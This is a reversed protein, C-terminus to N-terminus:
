RLSRGTAHLPGAPAFSRRTERVWELVRMTQEACRRWQFARARERGAEVLRARLAPDETVRIMGSAISEVSEPDVLVAAGSAVEKTGYRDSTVVPCGAAMAELVPLGCSEFLSPLLLADALGYVAALDEEEAVWGPWHVWSAIGLTEPERLASEALFRNEGGAVVLHVGRPPGVKAYAQVLRAFNKPPYIAGAYLFYRDPLGYWERVAQLRDPDQQMRFVDDVGSYVTVVRAPDVHLYHIVQQRTVESVAIIADAKHAYRPILYRHSLRDPLRSWYPMVYWDLGHCVWVSRCRVALAMSYKPNFLLDIGHRRVALPVAAQDWLLVNPASLAVEEVQPDAAHTGVLAPNRYLLVFAHGTRLELLAELLKRTYVRVGGPHQDYHRLMVGIRV